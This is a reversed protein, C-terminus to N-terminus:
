VSPYNRAPQEEASGAEAKVLGTFIVFHLDYEPNVKIQLGTDPNNVLFHLSKEPRYLKSRSLNNFKSLINVSNPATPSLM